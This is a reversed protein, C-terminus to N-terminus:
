KRIPLGIMQRYENATAPERGLSRAIAVARRVEDGNSEVKIDRHPWKFVMDEMGVRVHWGMAMAITAAYMGSRGCAALIVLSKGGHKQDIKDIQSKYLLMSQMLSVPDMVATGSDGEM